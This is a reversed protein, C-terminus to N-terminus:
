EAAQKRPTHHADLATIVEAMIDTLTARLAAFPKPKIAMVAENMYLDRNLEIQIAEVGTPPTGYHSTVYGGAYPYNRTVSLGRAKFAAEFVRMVEPACSQGFRDGLVVDARRAGMPAFGPMSHCDVVLARGFAACAADIRARLATHYPTYLQEIRGKAVSEPLPESYIPKHESIVLPIVGYGAKARTTQPAASGAWGQPLEDSARNADVFCRPFRASLLPAGLRTVDAYLRDIGRDENRRLDALDCVSQSLFSEPYVDGSHPSAFVLPTRLTDPLSLAFAPQLASLSAREQRM